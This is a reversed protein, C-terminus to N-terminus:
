GCSAQDLEAMLQGASVIGMIRETESVVLVRYTIGRPRYDISASSLRM